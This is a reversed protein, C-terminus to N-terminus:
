TSRFRSKLYMLCMLVIVVTGGFVHRRQFAFDCRVVLEAGGHQTELVIVHRPGSECEAVDDADGDVVVFEDHGVVVAEVGAITLEQAYGIGDIGADAERGVVDSQEFFESAQLAMLDNHLQLHLTATEVHLLGQAHFVGVVARCVGDGVGREGISAGHFGSFDCAASQM